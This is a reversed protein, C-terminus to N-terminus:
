EAVKIELDPFNERFKRESENVLKQGEAIEREGREIDEQARKLDREAAKVRKEGNKVRKQGRAILDQAREWEKALQNRLNVDSQLDTAHQKMLDATTPKTPKSTCGGLAMLCTSIVIGSVIKLKKM